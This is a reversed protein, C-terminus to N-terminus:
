RTINTDPPEIRGASIVTMVGMSYLRDLVFGTWKPIAFIVLASLPLENRWGIVAVIMPICIMFIAILGCTGSIVSFLIYNLAEARSIERM